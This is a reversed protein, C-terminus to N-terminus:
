EEILRVRLPTVQMPYSEMIVEPIVEVKDGIKLESLNFNDNTGPAIDVFSEMGSEEIGKFILLGSETREISEVTMTMNFDLPLVKLVSKEGEPGNFLVYEVEVETGIGVDAMEFTEFVIEGQNTKLTIADEKVSVVSGKTVEIIHGMNTHKMGFNEILFPKLSQNGKDGLVQVTEGLYVETANNVAFVEVIDGFLIHVKNGDIEIVEGIIDFEPIESGDVLGTGCEIIEGTNETSVAQNSNTDQAANAASSCGTVLTLSLVALMGLKMFRKLRM